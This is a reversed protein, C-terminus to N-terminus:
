YPLIETKLQFKQLCSVLFSKFTLEHAYLLDLCRLDLAESMMYKLERTPTIKMLLKKFIIM